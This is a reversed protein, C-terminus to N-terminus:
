LDIEWFQKRYKEYFHAKKFFHHVRLGHMNKFFSPSKLWAYKKGDRKPTPDSM